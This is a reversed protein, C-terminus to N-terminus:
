SDRIWRLFRGGVEAEELQNEAEELESRLSKNKM